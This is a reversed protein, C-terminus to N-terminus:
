YKKDPSITVKDKEKKDNTIQIYKNNSKIFIENNRLEYEDSNKKFQAFIECSFIIVCLIILKLILTNKTM